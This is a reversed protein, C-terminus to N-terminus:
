EAGIFNIDQGDELRVYAKRWNKRKGMTSRSRKTKGQVNTVQVAKVKVDFLMEVASKIEPKTADPAVKFVIQNGQDAVVTAKESVHPGLLVKMLRESKM